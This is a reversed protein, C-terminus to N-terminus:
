RTLTGWTTEGGMVETTERSQKAVRDRSLVLLNARALIIKLTGLAVCLVAVHQVQYMVLLKDEYYQFRQGLSYYYPQRFHQVVGMNYWVWVAISQKIWATQDM